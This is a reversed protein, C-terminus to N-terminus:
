PPEIVVQIAERFCSHHGVEVFVFLSEAFSSGSSQDSKKEKIECDEFNKRRRKEGSYLIQCVSVLMLLVAPFWPLVNQWLFAASTRIGKNWHISLRIIVLVRDDHLLAVWLLVVTFLLSTRTYHM